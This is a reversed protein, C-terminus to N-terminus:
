SSSAGAIHEAVFRSLDETSPLAVRYKSVFLQNDMGALAYEVLAQNKDTCLLIGIPPNDDPGQEHRKFWTVYTNLQGLHEHAFSGVKLEVLVHCKLIRHYFVLDVFFHEDGILIRRQRAEFCFGRGLELLFDSLRRLLADELHTETVADSAPLGLFEFVYPDRIVQSPLLRESSAAVAATLIEPKRSLAAREYLLSGIQRQLERVSWGGRICEREYFARASADEVGLLARLHTFSLARLLESGAVGTSEPSAPDRIPVPLRAVFEPSVADRIQPYARYLAQYRRLERAESRPVRAEQLREAIREFLREGYAARDSGLLEFVDIYAGILWNRVTLATNVARISEARLRAHVDTLTAILADFDSGDGM